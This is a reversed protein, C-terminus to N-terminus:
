MREYTCLNLHNGPLLVRGPPILQLLVDYDGVNETLVVLGLRQAHLFLVGDQLARLQLSGIQDIHVCTDSCCGKVASRRLLRSTARTTRPKFRAWRRAAEFDFEAV